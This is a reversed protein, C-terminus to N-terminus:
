HISMLALVFHQEKLFWVVSNVCQDILKNTESGDIAPKLRLAVFLNFYVSEPRNYM